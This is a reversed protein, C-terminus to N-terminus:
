WPKYHHHFLPAIPIAQKAVNTMRIFAALEWTSTILKKDLQSAEHCIKQTKDQPLSVKMQVTVIQHHLFIIEQVPSLQSTKKNITLGLSAHPDWILNVQKLLEEQSKHMVLMNGLYIIVTIGKERLFAVVPKMLKIFVQPCMIFQITSLQVPIEPGSM